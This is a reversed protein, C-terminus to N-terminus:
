STREEEPTGCNTAADKWDRGRVVNGGGERSWSEQAERRLISAVINLAWCPSWSLSRGWSGSSVWAGENCIETQICRCTFTHVHTNIWKSYRLVSKWEWTEFILGWSEKAFIFLYDYLKTPTWSKSVIKEPDLNKASNKKLLRPEEGHSTGKNLLVEMTGFWHLELGCLTCATKQPGPHWRLYSSHSM